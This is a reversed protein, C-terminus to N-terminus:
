LRSQGGFILRFGQILVGASASPPRRPHAAARLRAMQRAEPRLLGGQSPDALLPERRSSRLRRM